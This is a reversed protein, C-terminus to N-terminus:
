AEGLKMGNRDELDYHENMSVLKGKKLVIENIALLPNADTLENAM